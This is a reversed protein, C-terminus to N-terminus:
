GAASSGLSDVLGVLYKQILTANEISIEYNDGVMANYQQIPSLEANGALYSQILTADIISVRGDLNVDGKLFIGYDFSEEPIVAEETSLDVFTFGNAKAYDEAPTGAYGNVVFGPIAICNGYTTYGISDNAIFEIDKGFVVSMSGCGSFAGYGITKLSDPLEIKTLNLCNTFAFVGIEEIGNGFKVDSLNSCGAFANYGISTLSDPLEVKELAYAFVFNSSGLSEVGEELILTELSHMFMFADDPLIKITGPITISVVSDSNSFCFNASIKTVKLGYIESPFVINSDNGYYEILEVERTIPDVNYIFNTPEAEEYSIVAYAEGNIKEVEYIGDAFTIEAEECTVSQIQGVFSEITCKDDTLTILPKFTYDETQTYLTFGNNDNAGYISVLSYGKATCNEFSSTSFNDNAFVASNTSYTVSSDEIKCDTFSCMDAAGAMIASQLIESSVTSHKVACNIFQTNNAMGVIIGSDSYSDITIDEFTVDKIVANDTYGFFGASEDSDSILTYGKITHGNGDFTGSFPNKYSHMVDYYTLQSLDLDTNLEIYKSEIRNHNIINDYYYYFDEMSNISYSFNNVKDYATKLICYTNNVKNQSASEDALVAEANAVENNLEDVLSQEISQQPTISKADSILQSLENKRVTANSTYAKIAAYSIFQNNDQAVDTWGGNETILYSKGEIDPYLYNDTKFKIILEKGELVVSFIDGESLMIGDPCEITHIGTFDVSTDFTVLLEGDVPSTYGDSLKYISVTFDSGGANNLVIQELEETSLATFVNAASSVTQYRDTTFQHQYINDFSDVSQMEFQEYRNACNEYSVWFYGKYNEATCGHNEGWSNKCLWAGNNEPQMEPNFNDASYNDDWGIITVSHNQDSLNEEIANGNDYYSQMGDKDYYNSSYCNYSYAVAGNEMIKQKILNVDDTLENYDELRYDSYFRLGEAYGNSFDSYEMMSEPYTGFGNSLGEAVYRPFGGNSGKSSDNIYDGYLPSSTDSVGTHIYWSNGGESLDLTTYDEDGLSKTLISSEISATASFDWCLGESGQDKVGTSRNYDRLDYSSPIEQNVKVRNNLSTLDVINGDQDYYTITNGDIEQTISEIQNSNTNDEVAAVSMMSVSGTALLTSLFVALFKKLM